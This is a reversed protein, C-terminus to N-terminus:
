AARDRPRRPPPRRGVPMPRAPEVVARRALVDGVRSGAMEGYVTSGVRLQGAAASNAHHFRPVSDTRKSQKPRGAQRVAPRRIRRAGSSRVSSWEDHRDAGSGARSTTASPTVPGVV